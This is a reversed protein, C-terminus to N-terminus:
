EESEEDEDRDKNLWITYWEAGCPSDHHSNQIKMWVGSEESECRFVNFTCDCKPLVARLLEEANDARVTAKGSQKRWGFNEVRVNWGSYGVGRKDMEKEIETMLESVMYLMDQWAIDIVDYDECALQFFEDETKGKNAAHWGDDLVDLESQEKLWKAHECTIDCTDWRCYLTQKSASETITKTEM